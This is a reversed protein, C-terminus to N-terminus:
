SASNAQTYRTQSTGTVTPYISSTSLLVGAVVIELVATLFKFPVLKKVLM